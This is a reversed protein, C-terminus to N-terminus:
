NEKLHSIDDIMVKSFGDDNHEFMTISANAPDYKFSEGRPVGLLNPMLARVAGGHTVIIISKGKNKKLVQEIVGVLREEFQKWSEGQPPVYNYRENLTMPDLVVQVESWPKESYIGWNREQMREIPRFFVGLEESLIEASQIARKEKSSYIIAPNFEKLRDATRKIQERGVDNLVEPDDYSHLKGRVNKATEGHRVLILKTM